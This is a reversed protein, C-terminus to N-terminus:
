KIEGNEFVVTYASTKSDDFREMPEFGNDRLYEYTTDRYIPDNMTAGAVPKQLVDYHFHTEGNEDILCCLVMYRVTCCYVTRIVLSFDKHAHVSITYDHCSERLEEPVNDTPKFSMEAIGSSLTVLELRYLDPNINQMFHSNGMITYNLSLSDLGKLLYNADM